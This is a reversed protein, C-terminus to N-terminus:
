CTSLMVTSSIESRVSYTDTPIVTCSLTSAHGLKTNTSASALTLIFASYTVFISVYKGRVLLILIRSCLVYTWEKTVKLWYAIDQIEQKIYTPWLSLAGSAPFSVQWMASRNVREQQTTQTCVDLSSVSERRSSATGYQEPLELTSSLSSKAFDIFGDDPYPFGHGMFRDRSAACFAFTSGQAPEQTETSRILSLTEKLDLPRPGSKPRSYQRSISASHNQIPENDLHLPGSSRYRAVLPLVKLPTQHPSDGLWPSLDLWEGWPISDEKGHHMPSQRSSPRWSEETMKENNAISAQDIHDGNDPGDPTTTHNKATETLELLHVHDVDHTAAMYPRHGCPYPCSVPSHSGCFGSCSTPGFCNCTRGYINHTLSTPDPRSPSRSYYRTKIDKESSTPKYIPLAASYSHMHFGEEHTDPKSTQPIGVCSHM